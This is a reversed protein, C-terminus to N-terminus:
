YTPNLPRSNQAKNRCALVWFWLWGYIATGDKTPAIEQWNKKATLKVKRIERREFRLGRFMQKAVTFAAGVICRDMDCWPISICM